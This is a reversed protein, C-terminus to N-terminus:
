DRRVRRHRASRRDAPATPRHQLRRHWNSPQRPSRCPPPARHCTFGFAGLSLARGTMVNGTMIRRLRPHRSDDVPRHAVLKNHDHPREREDDGAPQRDLLCREVRDGIEGIGLDDDPGLEGPLRRLDDLVENGIRERCRHQPQRFRLSHAAERHEPRAEDVHDELVADVLVPRPRADDFRQRRGPRAQRCVGARADPRIRGSHTPHELVAQDVPGPLAVKRLQARQLVPEDLEFQGRHRTNGLDGRDAPEDLFVLHEDVGVSQAGVVDRDRPDDRRDLGGAALDAAADDLLRFRFQDDTRRAVDLVELLQAVDDDIGLVPRRHLEPIDRAQDLPRLQAATDHFEVTFSLHDAPDDHHPRTRIRQGHDIADLLLELLDLLAQRFADLDDRDVVPRRQDLPRDLIEFVLEDLFGENDGEHAQDEQQVRSGRENRDDRQREADETREDDHRLLPNGGVDHREAPNRDRDARHHVGRDHHHFVRM